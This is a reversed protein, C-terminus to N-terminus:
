KLLHRTYGAQVLYDLAKQVPTPVEQKIQFGFKPYEIIRQLDGVMINIIKDKPQAENFYDEYTIQPSSVIFETNKDPWQKAFTAHARREMYPIQVLLVSNIHIGKNDLLKYVFRINEGTNKSEKEIIIKDNAVGIKKAITAFHEAETNETWETKLLDDQHAAGGSIILWKGYGDLFLQAAYEAVRDDISGLVLIADCKRLKHGILMYNWITKTAEDVKSM